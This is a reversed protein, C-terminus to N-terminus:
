FGDGATMQAASKKVITRFISRYCRTQDESEVFVWVPPSAGFGVAEPVERPINGLVSGKGTVKVKARGSSTSAKLSLKVMGSSDRSVFRLSSGKAKWGAGAPADIRALLTGAPRELSRYMACVRYGTSTTPDGFSGPLVSLKGADFTLRESRTDDSEVVKLKAGGEADGQCDLFPYYPNCQTALVNCRTCPECTLVQGTPVCAGSGNCREITCSEADARCATGSPSATCTSSCCDGDERNGDECTEGPDIVGNSCKTGSLTPNLASPTVSAQFSLGNAAGAGSLTCPGPPEPCSDLTGSFAGTDVDITGTAVTAPPFGGPCTTTATFSSGSQVWNTTCVFPPLADISLDVVFVGSLDVAAQSPVACVTALLLASALCSTVCRSAPM